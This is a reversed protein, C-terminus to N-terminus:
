ADRYWVRIFQYWHANSQGGTGLMTDESGEEDPDYINPLVVTEITIVEPKNEAIWINMHDVVEQFGEVKTSKFMGGKKTIQPTFDKNKIM